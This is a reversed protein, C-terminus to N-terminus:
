GKAGVEVSNRRLWQVMAARGEASAQKALRETRKRCEEETLEFRLRAIDQLLEPSPHRNRM